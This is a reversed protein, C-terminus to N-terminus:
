LGLDIGSCGAGKQRVARRQLTLLQSASNSADPGSQDRLVQFAPHKARLGRHGQRGGSDSRPVFLPNTPLRERVGTVLARVMTAAAARRAFREAEDQREAAIPRRHRSLPPPCLALASSVIVM